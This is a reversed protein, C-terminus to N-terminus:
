IPLQYWRVKRSTAFAKRLYIIEVVVNNPSRVYYRILGQRPTTLPMELICVIFLETRARIRHHGEENRSKKRSYGGTDRRTISEIYRMCVKVRAVLIM